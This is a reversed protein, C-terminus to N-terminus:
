ADNMAKYSTDGGSDETGAGRPAPIPTSFVKVALGIGLVIAAAGFAAGAIAAHKASDVAEASAAAGGGGGALASTPEYARVVRGNLPQAPRYNGRPVFSSVGPWSMTNAGLAQRMTDLMRASVGIPDALVVWRVDETCPPTTLSGDYTFYRGSPPLTAALDLSANVVTGGADAGLVYDWLAALEANFGVASEAFTVGIVFLAGTAADHHVLHMELDRASSGFLHESASHFHLQLLSYRRGTMPDTAEGGGGGSIPAFKVTHGDNTINIRTLPSWAVQLARLSADVTASAINIPSQAQLGCDPYAVAGHSNTLQSWAAPGDASSSARNYSWSPGGHSAAVFAAAFALTVAFM